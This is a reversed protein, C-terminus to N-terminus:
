RARQKRKKRDGGGGSSSGSSTKLHKNALREIWKSLSELDFSGGSYEDVLPMDGILALLTPYQKFNPFEKAIASNSGRSEAFAVFGDHRHKYSLSAYIPSTEYKDSLLLISVTPHGPTGSTSLLREQIHKMSNVNIVLGDVGRMTQTTHDHLKKPSTAVSRNVPQVRGNLVTAFRPLDADKGLKKQCFSKEASCEVAGVKFIMGNKSKSKKLLGEALNWAHSIHQETTSGQQAKTKDYFLILWANKAKSDPFKPKGLPVVAGDKPFVPQAKQQQQKQQQQQGGGFGGGGGFMNGFDFGGGFGGSGGSGGKGFMGNFMKFADANNFSGGGSFSGGGPFGGGPFGGGFGGGPFGGGGSGFGAEEPDIGKELM